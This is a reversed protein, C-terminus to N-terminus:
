GSVCAHLAFIPVFTAIIFLFFFSNAVMAVFAMLSHRDKETDRLLEPNHLPQATQFKRWNRWPLFILLLMLLMSVATVIAEVVVLGPVRAINFPFWGWQCSISPLAYVTNLDTFWILIGLFLSWRPWRDDTKPIDPKALNM